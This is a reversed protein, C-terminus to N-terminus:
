AKFLKIKPFILLGLLIIGSINSLLSNHNHSHGDALDSVSEFSLFSDAFYGFFLSTVVIGFLYAITGKGGFMNKAALITSTNTAPGALLFILAAGPTLGKSLLAAAIPTSSSACVYLPISICLAVLMQLNHNSINLPIFDTPLFTSIIASICFGILLPKSLDKPLEYFTFNLFSKKQTNLNNDLINLKNNKCCDKIESSSGPADIKASVKEVLIGSILASIFAAVVRLIAISSGLLGNTLLFSDVGVEPTSIM